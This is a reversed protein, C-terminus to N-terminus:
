LAGNLMKILLDHGIFFSHAPLRSFILRQAAKLLVSCLSLSSAWIGQTCPIGLCLPHFRHSFSPSHWLQWTLHIIEEDTSEVNHSQIGGFVYLFEILAAKIQRAVDARSCVIILTVHTCVCHADPLSSVSHFTEAGRVACCRTICVAIYVWLLTKKKRRIWRNSIFHVEFNSRKATM